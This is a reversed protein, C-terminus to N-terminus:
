GIIDKINASMVGKPTSKPSVPPLQKMQRREKIKNILNEAKTQLDARSNSDWYNEHLNRYDAKINEKELVTLVEANDIEEYWDNVNEDFYHREEAARRVAQKSPEINNIEQETYYPQAQVAATGTKRQEARLDLLETEFESLIDQSARGRSFQLPQTPADYAYNLGQRVTQNLVNEPLSTRVQSLARMYEDSKGGFTDFMDKIYENMTRLLNDISPM